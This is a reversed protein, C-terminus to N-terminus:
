RDGGNSSPQPLLDPRQARTGFWYAVVNLDKDLRVRAGLTTRRIEPYAYRLDYFRVMYGADAGEIQETELIPYQAWDM